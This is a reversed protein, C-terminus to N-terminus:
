RCSWLDVAYGQKTHYVICLSLLTVFDAIWVNKLLVHPHFCNMRFLAGSELVAQIHVHSGDCIYSELLSKCIPCFMFYAGCVEVGLMHKGCRKPRHLFAIHQRNAATAAVSGLSSHTQVPV